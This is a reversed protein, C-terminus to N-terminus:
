GQKNLTCYDHHFLGLVPKFFANVITFFFFFVINYSVLFLLVGFLCKLSRLTVIGPFGFHSNQM